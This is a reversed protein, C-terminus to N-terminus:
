KGGQLFRGFTLAMPPADQPIFTPHTRELGEVSDIVHSLKALDEKTAPRLEDTAPDCCWLAQGSTSWQVETPLPADELVSDRKREAIRGMVEDVVRNPFCVHTGEIECGFERLVGFFGETGDITMGMKRIVREGAEVIAKLDKEDMAVHVPALWRM